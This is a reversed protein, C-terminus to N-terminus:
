FLKPFTEPKSIPKKSRGHHLYRVAFCRSLSTYLTFALCFSACSLFLPIGFGGPRHVTSEAFSISRPFIQQALFSEKAMTLHKAEREHARERNRKRKREKTQKSATPLAFYFISICRTPSEKSYTPQLSSTFNVLFLIFDLLTKCLISKTM